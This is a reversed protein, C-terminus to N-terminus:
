LSTQLISCRTLVNVEEADVKDTSHSSLHLDELNTSLRFHPDRYLYCHNLQKVIRSCRVIGTWSGRWDESKSKRESRRRIMVDSMKKMARIIKSARQWKRKTLWKKLKDTCLVVGQSVEKVQLWLIVVVLLPVTSRVTGHTAPLM